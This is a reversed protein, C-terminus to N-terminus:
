DNNGAGHRFEAQHHHEAHEAATMLEINEPRNDWPINNKHHVVNDKVTELGFESVALLRHLLVHYEEGDMENKCYEYGNVDSHINPLQKLWRIKAAEARSRKEIGHKELWYKVGQGTIKNDFHDAIEQQSMRKGHYLERLLEKDRWPKTKNESTM